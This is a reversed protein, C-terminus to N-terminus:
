CRSRPSTPAPTVPQDVRAGAVARNGTGQPAQEGTLAERLMLELASSIPVEGRDQARSIPPRQADAHRHQRASQRAYGGHQPSGAGRGARAGDCRPRPPSRNSRDRQPMGIDSHHKMRLAYSDAFGRAEAVQDPPLTRSPTPVKIQKGIQVPADATFGM